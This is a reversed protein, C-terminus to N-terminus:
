RNRENGSFTQRTRRAFSGRHVFVGRVLGLWFPLAFIPLVGIYAIIGRPPCRNLAAVVAPLLALGLGVLLLTVARRWRGTSVLSLFVALFAPPSAAATVLAMSRLVSTGAYSDIFLTGRDFTHRVFGRVTTRPRYVAAFGPDIRISHTEAIRRLVKTDDSVLHADGDPASHAFADELVDRRALFVTTGKPAQDFTEATLDFPRPDRLYRRWFVWTPVDWFRGILPAKADMTIHANLALRSPNRRIDRFAYRLAGAELLVRSDLLLIWPASSARLGAWRAHFRGSNDQRIYRVRAPFDQALGSVTDATGDTSGDDVLVVEADLNADLLASALAEFTTPLWEASNFSPIVVSVEPRDPVRDDGGKM